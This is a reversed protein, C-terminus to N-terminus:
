KYNEIVGQYDIVKMTRQNLKDREFNKPYLYKEIDVTPSFNHVLLLKEAPGSGVMNSFPRNPRYESPYEIFLTYPRKFSTELLHRNPGYHSDCGICVVADPVPLISMFTQYMKFTIPLFAVHTFRGSAGPCPIEASLAQLIPEVVIV